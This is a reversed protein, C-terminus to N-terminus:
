SRLKAEASVYTHGFSIIDLPYEDTEATAHTSERWWIALHGIGGIPVLRFHWGHAPHGSKLSFSVHENRPGADVRATIRYLRASPCEKLM